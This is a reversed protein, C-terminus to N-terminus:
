STLQNANVAPIQRIFEVPLAIAQQIAHYLEETAREKAVVAVAGARLM